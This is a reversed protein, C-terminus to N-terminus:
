NGSGVIFERQLTLMIIKLDLLFYFNQVYALDHEIRAIALDLQETSGRLGNVQAWGTLGPRVTHRHDYYPVVLNYPVNAALQGAVHPRPGVLSMDGRLVNFLQPLEDLSTRRLFAGFPTVRSDDSKTQQVGSSDCRDAYMTRFKLIQFSRNFRGVRAQRFFVPGKSTVKVTVAIFAFLPFLVVLASASVLIDFIRKLSLHTRYRPTQVPETPWDNLWFCALGSHVTMSVDGSVDERSDRRLSASLEKHQSIVQPATSAIPLM